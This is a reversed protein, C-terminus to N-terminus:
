AVPILRISGRGCRRWIGWPTEGLGASKLMEALFTTELDQAATRLQQDRHAAAEPPSVPVIQM